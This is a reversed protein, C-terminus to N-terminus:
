RKLRWLVLLEKLANAKIYETGTIMTWHGTTRLKLCFYREGEYTVVASARNLPSSSRTVRCSNQNILWNM